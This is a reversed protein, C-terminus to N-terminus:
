IAPATPCHCLQLRALQARPVRAAKSLKTTRSPAAASIPHTWKKDSRFLGGKAKIDAYSQGSFGGFGYDGTIGQGTVKPASRGFLKAHISSGSLISAVKDNFGLGRFGKDALGM